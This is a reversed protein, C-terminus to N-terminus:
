AQLHVTENVFSVYTGKKVHHTVFYSDINILLEILDKSMCYIKCLTM